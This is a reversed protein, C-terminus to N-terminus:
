ELHALALLPASPTIRRGGHPPHVGDDIQGGGMAVRNFFLASSVENAVQAARMSVPEGAAVARDVIEDYLGQKAELIQRRMLDALEQDHHM